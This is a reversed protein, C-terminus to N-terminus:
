IQKLLWVFRHKLYQPFMTYENKDDTMIARDRALIVNILLAGM